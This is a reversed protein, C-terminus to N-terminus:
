KIGRLQKLTEKYMGEWDKLEEFTIRDDLKWYKIDKVTGDPNIYKERIEKQEWKNFKLANLASTMSNNYSQQKMGVYDAAVTYGAGGVLTLVAGIAIIRGIWTDFWKGEKNGKPM